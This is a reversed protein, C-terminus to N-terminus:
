SHAGEGVTNDNSMDVGYKGALRHVLIILYEALAGSYDMLRQHEVIMKDGVKLDLWPCNRVLRRDALAARHVIVNRVHHMEWIIKKLEAPVEGSLKLKDLLSEFLDIGQKGGPPQNRSVEEVVLRIRDERELVEFEAISIRIRSFAPELLLDTENSLMGVVSDEVAAQLAGWLGVLTHAHFLPFGTQVEKMALDARRRVEQADIGSSDGYVKELAEVAKPMTTLVSLGQISLKLLTSSEQVYELMRELPDLAYAPVRNTAMLSSDYYM